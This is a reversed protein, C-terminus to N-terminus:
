LRVSMCRMLTAFASEFEDEANAPIIHLEIGMDRAALEM